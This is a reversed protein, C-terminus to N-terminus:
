GEILIRMGNRRADSLVGRSKLLQHLEQKTQRFAAGIEDRQKIAQARAWPTSDGRVQIGCLKLKLEACKQALRGLPDGPYLWGTNSVSKRTAPDTVTIAELTVQVGVAEIVEGLIGCAVDHSIYQGLANASQSPAHAPAPTNVSPQPANSISNPSRYTQRQPLM